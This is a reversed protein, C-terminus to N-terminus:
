SAERLYMRDEMWITKDMFRSCFNLRVPFMATKLRVSSCISLSAASCLASSSALLAELSALADDGVREELSPPPVNKVCILSAVL